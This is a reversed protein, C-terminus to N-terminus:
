NTLLFYSNWRWKLLEIVIIAMEVAGIKIHQVM